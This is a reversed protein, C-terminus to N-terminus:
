CENDCTDGMETEFFRGTQTEFCRPIHPQPHAVFHLVARSALMYELDIEIFQRQSWWNQLLFYINGTKTDSRVALGVMAHRGIVTDPGDLLTEPPVPGYFHLKDASDRFQRRVCFGSVLFQGFQSFLMPADVPDCPITRNIEPLLITHLFALSTGGENTFIHRFLDHASFHHHVCGSLDLMRHDDAPKPANKNKYYRQVAYFQVVAPAHMFCLPSTQIHQVLLEPEVLQRYEPFNDFSFQQVNDPLKDQTQDHSHEVINVLRLLARMAVMDGDPAQQLSKFRDFWHQGSIPDEAFVQRRKLFAIGQEIQELSPGM